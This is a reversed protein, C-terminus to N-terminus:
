SAAESALAIGARDGLIAAAAATLTRELQPASLRWGAEACDAAGNVLGKSVYYRYRRQGKASGQVYLPEGNEDFLKGALPSASAMTKRGEGTRAAHSCLQLQVQEWLERSVVPEHQGRYRERRHRIEGIYIPNSLLNYLAGRSFPQDGRLKGKRTTKRASLIGRRDLDTKLLRVRGLELYREFITRVARAENQNYVVVVDIRNRRIDALLRQLAPREMSGGSFGGDDYATKILRWGEGTQSRVFAKCAERQAHLSNYDQKLGEESSKRTYIVCRKIPTDGDVAAEATRKTLGFFLPGSWRTGTTARAVESLSQYRRGRYVVDHDLVTVRHRVGRWERIQVTGATIRTKTIRVSAAGRPEDCVRDLVRQASAKLGGRGKEQLRYAIARILLTRGLRDPPDVGCLTSWKERLESTDLILLDSVEQELSESGGGVASSRNNRNAVIRAAVASEL